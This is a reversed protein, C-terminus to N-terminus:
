VMETHFFRRPWSLGGDRRPLYISRVRTQRASTLPPPTWKRRTSPLVTHDWMAVSVRYSQSLTGRLASWKSRVPEALPLTRKVAYKWKIPVREVVCSAAPSHWHREKRVCACGWFERPWGRLTWRPMTDCPSVPMLSAVVVFVVAIAAVVYNCPSSREVTTFSPSM